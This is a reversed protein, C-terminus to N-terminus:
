VRYWNNGDSGLTIYDYQTSTVWPANIGEIKETMYPVITVPNSSSDIKKVTFVSDKSNTAVPLTATITTNSADCMYITADLTFGFNWYIINSVMPLYRRIAFIDTMSFGLHMRYIRGYYDKNTANTGGQGRLVTLTDGSRTLVYILEVLPDDAPDNYDTSNWWALFFAGDTSPQPLLSGQGSALDISTAWGSYGQSVTVKAFNKVPDLAM